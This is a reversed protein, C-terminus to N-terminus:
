ALGLGRSGGTVVVKTGELSEMKMSGKKEPANRRLDDARRPPSSAGRDPGRQGVFGAICRSRVSRVRGLDDVGRAARHTAAGLDGDVRERRAHGASRPDTGFGVLSPWPRSKRAVDQM